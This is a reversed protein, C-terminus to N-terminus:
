PELWTRLHNFNIARRQHRQLYAALGADVTLICVEDSCHFLAADTIGFYSFAEHQAIDIARIQREEFGTLISAKFYKSWDAKRWQPLSNALNSVETLIHPTVLLVGANAVIQQLYEFDEIVFNNLRKWKGILSSDFSGVILLLLLNSDILLEPLAPIATRSTSEPSM